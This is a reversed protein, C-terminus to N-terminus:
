VKHKPCLPLSKNLMVGTGHKSKNDKIWIKDLNLVIIGERFSIISNLRSVFLDGTDSIDAQRGRGITFESKKSFSLVLYAKQNIKDSTNQKGEFIAFPPPINNNGSIM